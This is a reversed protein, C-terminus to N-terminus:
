AAPSAPGCLAAHIVSIMAEPGDQKAVFATARMARAARSNVQVDFMTTAVIPMMADRGRLTKILELGNSNKLALDTLVLDPKLRTIDALAAPVDDAVGCVGLTPDRELMAVINRRMFEHDEVVFVRRKEARSRAAEQNATAMGSTDGFVSAGGM